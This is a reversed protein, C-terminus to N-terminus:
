TIEYTVSFGIYDSTSWTMPVSNSMQSPGASPSGGVLVTMSGASNVVFPAGPWAAPASSDFIYVSGIAINGGTINANTTFPLTITFTGSGASVGSTGFKILGRVDCWNGNRLTYRGLASSGTGLTPNTTSGNLAPTYTGTLMQGLYIWAAATANWSMYRETDTEWIVMGDPPSSPRTGSTCPIITQQLLPNFYTAAGPVDGTVLLTYM